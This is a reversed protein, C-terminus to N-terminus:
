CGLITVPINYQLFCRGKDKSSVNLRPGSERRDNFIGHCKEYFLLPTVGTDQGFERWQGNDIVKILWSEEGGTAPTHHACQRRQVTAATVDDLHINCVQPPQASIGEYSQLDSYLHRMWGDMLGSVGFKNQQQLFFM